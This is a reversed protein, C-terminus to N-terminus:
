GRGSIFVMLWSLILLIEFINERKRLLPVRAGGMTMKGELTLLFLLRKKRNSKKLTFLLCM